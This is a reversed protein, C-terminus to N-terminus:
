IIKCYKRSVKRADDRKRRRQRRPLLALRVAQEFLQDVNDRTLASCEFFRDAGIAESVALGEAHSLIDQM